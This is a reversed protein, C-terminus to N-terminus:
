SLVIDQTVTQGRKATVTMTNDTFGSKTTRITIQHALGALNRVFLVYWGDKETVYNSEGGDHSVTANGVPNNGSLVRGRILTADAPFPYFVTPRLMSLKRQDKYKQPQAPDDLPLARDALALNPYAPWKPDLASDSQPVSLSIDAPLYIPPKDDSRIQLTYTGNPLDDYFCFTGEDQKTYPIYPGIQPKGAIVMSVPGRLERHKTFQDSLIVALKLQVQHEDPAVTKLGVVPM